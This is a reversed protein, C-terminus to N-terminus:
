LISRSFQSDQVDVGIHAPTQRIDDIRKPAMHLYLVGNVYVWAEIHDEGDLKVALVDVDVCARPRRGSPAPHQVRLGLVFIAVALLGSVVAAAILVVPDADIQPVNM